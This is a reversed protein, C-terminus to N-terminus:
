LELEIRHDVGKRSSLTKPLELPMVDTFEKLINAVMVYEYTAEVDLPELKRLQLFRRIAEKRPHCKPNYKRRKCLIALKESM